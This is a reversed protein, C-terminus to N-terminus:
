LLYMWDGVSICCISSLVVDGVLICVGVLVPVHIVHLYHYVGLMFYRYMGLMFYRYEYYFM